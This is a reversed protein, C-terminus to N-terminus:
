LRDKNFSPRPKFLDTSPNCKRVFNELDPTECSRPIDALRPHSTSRHPPDVTHTVTDTPGTTARRGSHSHGSGAEGDDRGVPGDYVMADQAETGACLPNVDLGSRRVQGGAIAEGSSIYRLPVGFYDIEVKGDTAKTQRLLLTVASFYVQTTHRERATQGYLVYWTEGGFIPPTPCIM